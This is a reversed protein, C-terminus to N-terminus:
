SMGKTFRDTKSRYPRGKAEVCVQHHCYSASGKLGGEIPFSNGKPLAELRWFAARQGNPLHFPFCPASSINCHSSAHIHWQVKPASGGKRSALKTTKLHTAQVPLRVHIAQDPLAAQDSLTGLRAQSLCSPIHPRILCHLRSLCHM